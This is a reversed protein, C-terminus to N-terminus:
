TKGESVENSGSPLQLVVIQLSNSWTKEGQGAGWETRTLAIVAPACSVPLAGDQNGRQEALQGAKQAM